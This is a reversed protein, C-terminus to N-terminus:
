DRSSHAYEARTSESGPVACTTECIALRGSSNKSAAIYRRDRCTNVSARPASESWARAIFLELTVTGMQAAENLAEPHLSGRMSNKSADDSTEPLTNPISNIPPAHAFVEAGENHAKTQSTEVAEHKVAELCTNGVSNKMNYGSATVHNTDSSLPNNCSNLEVNKCVSPTFATANPNLAHPNSVQQNVGQTLMREAAVTKNAIPVASAESADPIFESPSSSVQAKAAVGQDSIFECPSSAVQAKM